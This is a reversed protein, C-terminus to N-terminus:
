PEKKEGRKNIKVGVEKVVLLAAAIALKNYCAKLEDIILREEGTIETEVRVRIQRM